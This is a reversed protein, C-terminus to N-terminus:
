QAVRVRVDCPNPARRHERLHRLVEPWSMVPGPLFGDCTEYEIQFSLSARRQRARFTVAKDTPTTLDSASLVDARHSAEVASMSMATDAGPDTM